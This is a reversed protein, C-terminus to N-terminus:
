QSPRGLQLQRLYQECRASEMRGALGRIVSSPIYLTPAIGRDAIVTTHTKTPTAVVQVDGGELIAQIEPRFTIETLEAEQDLTFTAIQSLNKPEFVGGEFLIFDTSRDGALIYCGDANIVKAPEPIQCASLPVMALLLLRKM